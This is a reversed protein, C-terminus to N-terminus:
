LLRIIMEFRLDLCGRGMNINNNCLFSLLSVALNFDPLSSFDLNELDDVGTSAGRSTGPAGDANVNFGSKRGNNLRSDGVPENTDLNENCFLSDDFANLDVAQSDDEWVPLEM